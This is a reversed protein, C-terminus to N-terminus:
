RWFLTYCINVIRCSEVRISRSTVAFSSGDYRIDIQLLLCYKRLTKCISMRYSPDDNTTVLREVRTSEHRNSLMKLGRDCVSATYKRLRKCISKQYANGHWLLHNRLGGTDCCWKAAFRSGTQRNTLQRQRNAATQTYQVVRRLM